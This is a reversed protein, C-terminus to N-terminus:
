RTVNWLTLFVLQDYSSINRVALGNELTCILVTLLTNIQERSLPSATRFIDYRAQPVNGLLGREYTKHFRRDLIMLFM